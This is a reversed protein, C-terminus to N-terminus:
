EVDKLPVIRINRFRIDADLSNFGVQCEIDRNAELRNVLQGNLFFSLFRGEFRVEVDNWKDMPVAIDASRTVGCSSWNNGSDVRNLALDAARGASGNSLCLVVNQVAFDAGPMRYAEPPRLELLSATTGYRGNRPLFYQFKFSSDRFSADTLM